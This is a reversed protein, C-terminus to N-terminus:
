NEAHSQSYPDTKLNYVAEQLKGQIRTVFGQGNHGSSNARVTLYYAPIGAVIFAVRWPGDRIQIVWFHLSFEGAAAVAELPAAVIPM